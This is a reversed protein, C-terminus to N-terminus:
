HGINLKRLHDHWVQKNRLLGPLPIAVLTYLTHERQHTIMRTGPGIPMLIHTYLHHTAPLTTSARTKHEASIDSFNKLPKGTNKLLSHMFQSLKNVAFSIGPRTLSLYQLSGVATRYQTPEAMPSGSNLTLSSNPCMPTVVAKAGIMKTKELLDAFYRSQTLLLGKSTRLAEMGLFYSLNGLDKLSFRTSLQDIFLKFHDNNNGTLIIDDVYVLM